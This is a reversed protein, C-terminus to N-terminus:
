YKWSVDFEPINKLSPELTSLEEINRLLTTCNDDLPLDNPEYGFPDELESGIEDIGLLAFSILAV